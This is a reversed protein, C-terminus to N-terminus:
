CNSSELSDFFAVTRRKNYITKHHALPNIELKKPNIERLHHKLSLVDHNVRMQTYRLSSLHAGSKLEMKRTFVM